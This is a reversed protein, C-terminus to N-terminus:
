TSTVDGSGAYNLSDPSRFPTVDGSGSYKLSDPSRIGGLPLTNKLQFLLCYLVSSICLTAKSIFFGIWGDNEKIKEDNPL